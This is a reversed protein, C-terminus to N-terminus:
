AKLKDILEPNEFLALGTLALLKMGTVASERAYSKKMAELFEETHPFEDNEACKLFPHIAPLKCSVDGMDTSGGFVPPGEPIGLEALKERFIKVLVPNENLGLCTREFQSYELRCGTALAAAKACNIVKEAVENYYDLERARVELRIRCRDPISNVVTGGDLVIGHIRTGDRLQQRLVSVGNYLMVVADLANVGEFPKAGAHATKGEFTFDYGGITTVVPDACTSSFPHVMMAADYGDFVGKEILYPKGEGIEEGPTGIISVEGQCTDLISALATGAGVSMAAILNHGCAHGYGPLADYEALFALKPGEGNKKTARFATAMGALNEEVEFGESRLYEALRAAAMREEMAIEPNEMLYDSVALIGDKNKEVESFIRDKM